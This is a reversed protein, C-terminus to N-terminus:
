HLCHCTWYKWIESCNLIESWWDSINLTGGVGTLIIRTYLDSGSLLRSIGYYAHTCLFPHWQGRRRCGALPKSALRCCRVSRPPWFYTATNVSKCEVPVCNAANRMTVTSLRRYIVPIPHFLIRTQRHRAVTYRIQDVVTSSVSVTCCVRGDNCLLVVPACQAAHSLKMKRPERM